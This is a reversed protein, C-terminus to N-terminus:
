LVLLCTPKSSIRQPFFLSAGLKELYYPGVYRSFGSVSALKSQCDVYPKVIFPSIFGLFHVRSFFMCIHGGSVFLLFTALAVCYRWCSRKYYAMVHATSVCSAAEPLGKRVSM